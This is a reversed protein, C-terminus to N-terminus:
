ALVSYLQIINNRADFPRECLTVSGFKRVYKSNSALEPQTVLWTLRILRKFSPANFKINRNMVITTRPVAAPRTIGMLCVDLLKKKTNETHILDQKQWHKRYDLYNLCIIPRPHSDAKFVRIQSGLRRNRLWRLLKILKFWVAVDVFHRKM